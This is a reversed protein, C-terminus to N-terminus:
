MSSSIKKEGKLVVVEENDVVANVLLAREQSCRVIVIAIAM